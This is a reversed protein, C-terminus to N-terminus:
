ARAIGYGAGAGGCCIPTVKTLPIVLKALSSMGFGLPRDAKRNLGSVLLPGVGGDAERGPLSRDSCASRHRDKLGNLKGQRARSCETSNPSACKNDLM